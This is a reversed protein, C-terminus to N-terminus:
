GLDPSTSAKQIVNDAVKQAPAPTKHVTAQGADAPMKVEVTNLTKKTESVAIAPLSEARSPWIVRLGAEEAAKIAKHLERAAERVANEVNTV